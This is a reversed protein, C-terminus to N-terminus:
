SPWANTCRPSANHQTTHLQDHMTRLQGNHAAPWANTRRPSANHRTTHLQACVTQLRQQRHAVRPAPGDRRRQVNREVVAHCRTTHAVYLPVGATCAGTRIRCALSHPLLM